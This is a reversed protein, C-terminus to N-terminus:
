YRRRPRRSSRARRRCLSGFALDFSNRCARAACGSSGAVAILLLAGGAATAVNPLWPRQLAFALSHALSSPVAAGSCVALVSLAAPLQSALVPDSVKFVAAWDFLHAAATGAVAIGSGVATLLRLASDWINRMARSDDRGFARAFLTRAGLTVGVDGMGLLASLSAITMWLGYAEAGLHHLAIPV